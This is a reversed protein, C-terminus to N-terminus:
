NKESEFTNATKLRNDSGSSKKLRKIIEYIWLFACIVCYANIFFLSKFPICVILM